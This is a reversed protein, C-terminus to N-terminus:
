QGGQSTKMGCLPSPVHLHFVWSLPTKGNAMGRPPSPVPSPCRQRIHCRSAWFLRWGVRHARFLIPIDSRPPPTKTVMGCPPSLVKSTKFLFVKSHIYDGDWVTPESSSFLKCNFVTQLITVMGCPPSLVLIPADDVVDLLHDGDWM